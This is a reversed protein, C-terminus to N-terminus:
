LIFMSMINYRDNDVSTMSLVNMIKDVSTMSLVNMIKDVSTMSLVNM